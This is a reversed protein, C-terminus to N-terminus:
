VCLEEAIRDIMDLTYSESKAKESGSGSMHVPKQTRGM